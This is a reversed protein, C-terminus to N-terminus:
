SSGVNVFETILNPVLFDTIEEEMIIQGSKIVDDVSSFKGALVEKGLQTKPVWVKEEVEVPERRPRDRNFRRPGGDRNFRRNNPKSEEAM